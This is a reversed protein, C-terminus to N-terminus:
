NDKRDQEISTQYFVYATCRALKQWFDLDVQNVQWRVNTRSKPNDWDWYVLGSFTENYRWKGHAIANRFARVPGSTLFDCVRKTISGAPLAASLRRFCSDGLYLFCVYNQVIVQARVEEPEKAFSSFDMWRQFANIEEFVLDIPVPAFSVRVNSIEDAHLKTIELSIVSALRNSAVKGIELDDMLKTRYAKMQTDLYDWKM